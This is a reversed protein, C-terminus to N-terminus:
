EHARGARLRNFRRRTDHGSLLTAAMGPYRRQWNPHGSTTGPLNPQEVLGLMDEVAMLALPCAARGVFGIAEEVVRAAGTADPSPKEGARGRAASAPRDQMLASWLATRDNEREDHVTNPDLGTPLQHLKERWAIDTGQWWGAVTPLDHTTTMATAHPSWTAPPKFVGHPTREFFLVNMGMIGHAGAAKRFATTVTGLDEGIVMADARMAELSVLRMLDRVPFSLYSGEASAGGQPIIWLRELAMVHDIRLGGGHAFGARLTDIFARYGTARLGAPSFTTLGWDQGLPSLADPPAGIGAGLLFESQRAWCESGTPDVGVAMDKILGIRMGAARAGACARALSTAALWQVFVHFTVDHAFEQAFRAVEPSDPQRMAVPWRRWDSGREGRTSFYAHLAEFLAHQELARGGAARFDRMAQPPSAAIRDDYLRRLLQYRCTSARVWDILPADELQRLTDVYAAGQKVVAAQVTATDFVAHPDALLGNLFLRSSPSYPSYQGPRAAFMAHAPSIALADAGRAAAVRALTEVAGFHGIGGDGAMRLGYVQAGLGWARVSGGGCVRSVRPCSAPAIALTTPTDGMELRHYGCVGVPPLAPHGRMLRLRGEIEGGNELVLRFRGGADGPPLPLVTAQGAVGVVMAPLAGRPRPPPAHGELVALLRRLSENSVRHMEGAADRWRLSLGAHRAREVLTRNNM